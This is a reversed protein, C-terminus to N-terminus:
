GDESDSGDSNGCGEVYDPDDIINKEIGNIFNSRFLKSDAACQAQAQWAKKNKLPINLTNWHALPTWLLLLLIWNELWFDPIIIFDGGLIKITSEHDKSNTEKWIQLFNRLQILIRGGASPGIRLTQCQLRIVDLGHWACPMTRFRYQHFSICSWGTDTVDQTMSLCCMWDSDGVSQLTCLWITMRSVLWRTM